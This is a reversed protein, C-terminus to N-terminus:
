DNIDYVTVRLTKTHSSKRYLKLLLTQKQAATNLNKLYQIYQPNVRRLNTSRIIGAVSCRDNRILYNNADPSSFIRM